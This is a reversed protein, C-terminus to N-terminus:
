GTMPGQSGALNQQARLLHCDRCPDALRGSHMQERLQRYRRGNWIEFFSGDEFVNGMVLSGPAVCCPFVDGNPNVKAWFGVYLCYTPFRQQWTAAYHNLRFSRRPRTNNIFVRPTDLSLHLDIGEAEAAKEAEVLFREQDEIGFRTSPLYAEVGPFPVALQRFSIADVGLRAMFRVYDAAHPLTDHMLVASVMVEIDTQRALRCAETLNAVVREFTAGARISEYIEKIHSDFSFYLRGIAPAARRFTEGDLLTGNTILHLQVDYRRCRELLVDFNGLLPESGAAPTLVGASPLLADCLALAQEDTMSAPNPRTGPSCMRCRLNCLNNTALEISLPRGEWRLSGSAAEDMLQQFNRALTENKAEGQLPPPSASRRGPRLRDLARRWWRVPNVVPPM